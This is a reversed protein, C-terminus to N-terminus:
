KAFMWPALKVCLADDFRVVEDLTVDRTTTKKGVGAGRTETRQLTFSWGNCEAVRRIAGRLAWQLRRPPEEDRWNQLRPEKLADTVKRVTGLGTVLVDWTMELKLWMVPTPTACQVLAQALRVSLLAGDLRAVRYACLALRPQQELRLQALSHARELLTTLYGEDRWDRQFAYCTRHWAVLASLDLMGYAVLDSHMLTAVDRVLTPRPECDTLDLVAAEDDRKRKM